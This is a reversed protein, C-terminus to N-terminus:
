MKQALSSDFSIHSYHTGEGDENEPIWISHLKDVTADFTAVHLRLGKALVNSKKLFYLLYSLKVRSYERFHAKQPDVIFKKSQKLMVFENLVDTILLKEGFPKNTLKLRRSYAEQLDKFFDEPTTKITRLDNDYKRIENFITQPQLPIKSRIKEIEPGFHIEAEGFEFNLKITYLGVRLLPYQGRLRKGDEQLLGKLQQGFQYKVDDKAKELDEKAQNIWAMVSEKSNFDQLADAFKKIVSLKKELIYANEVSNEAIQQYEDLLKAIKKTNRSFARIKEALEKIM